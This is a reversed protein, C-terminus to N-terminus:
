LDNLIAQVGLIENVHLIKDRDETAKTKIRYHWDTEGADKLRQAEAFLREANVTFVYHEEHVCSGYTSSMSCDVDSAVRTGDTDTILEDGFLYNAGYPFAWDRGFFSTYIQLRVVRPTGKSVYARILQDDWKIRLIGNLSAYCPATNIEITKELRDNVGSVQACDKIHDITQAAYREDNEQQVQAPSACGGILVALAAIILRNM